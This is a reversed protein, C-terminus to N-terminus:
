ALVVARTNCGGGLQEIATPSLRLGVGFTALGDGDGDSFNELSADGDDVLPRAPLLNQRNPRPRVLLRDFRHAEEEARALATAIPGSITRRIAAATIGHQLLLSALVAADHVHMALASDPKTTDLFLEAIRGDSFKGLTVSYRAGDHEISFRVSARRNPLRERETM